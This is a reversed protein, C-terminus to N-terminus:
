NPVDVPTRSMEIWNSGNWVFAITRSFGNAPNTWTAMKFAANWTVALAGGSSNKITITTMAGTSNANLTPANVTFSAVGTGATYVHTVAGACNPTVSGGNTPSATDLYPMLVPARLVPFTSYVAGLNSDFYFNSPAGSFASAGLGNPGAHVIFNGGGACNYNAVSVGSQDWCSNGIFCNANGGCHFGYTYNQTELLNGAIYNGDGTSIYIPADGASASGCSLSVTNCTVQVANAANGWSVCRRMNHFFNDRIVTGYGQFPAGSDGGGFNSGFGGLIIGDNVASTGSAIGSFCCDHIRLTTNTTHIFPASDAGGDKLTLHDIELLGVGRTDLKAAGSTTRLDLTTASAPPATWQGNATAGAGTIRITPQSPYATAGNNRFVLQGPIYATGPPVIITGGTGNGTSGMLADVAAQFAATDDTVGDLAAGFDKVNVGRQSFEAVLPVSFDSLGFFAGSKVPIGGLILSM